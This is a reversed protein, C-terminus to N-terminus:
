QSTKEFEALTIARTSLKLASMIHAGILRFLRPQIKSRIFCWSRNQAFPMIQQEWCPWVSQFRLFRISPRMSNTGSCATVHHGVFVQFQCFYCWLLKIITELSNSFYDSSWQSSLPSFRAENFRDLDMILLDSWQSHHWVHKIIVDFKQWYRNNYDYDFVRAAWFVFLPPM